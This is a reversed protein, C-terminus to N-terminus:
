NACTFTPATVGGGRMTLTWGQRSVLRDGVVRGDAPLKVAPSAGTMLDVWAAPYRGTVVFAVVSADRATAATRACEDVIAGTSPSSPGSGLSENGFSGVVGGQTQLHLTSEDGKESAFTGVVVVVVSVVVYLVVRSWRKRRKGSAQRM